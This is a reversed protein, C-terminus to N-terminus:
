KIWNMFDFEDRKWNESKPLENYLIFKIEYNIFSKINMIEKLYELREFSKKNGIGLLVKKEPSCMINYFRKIRRNYKNVIHEFDDNSFDDKFDHPFVFNYLTHKMKITSYNDADLECYDEDLHPFSNSKGKCVLYEKDIFNSFDNLICLEIGKIDSIIWDFPYAAKRLGHKQLQYAVFCDSGLPIYIPEM